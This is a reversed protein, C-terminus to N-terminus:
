LFVIIAYFLKIIIYTQDNNNNNNNELSSIVVAHWNELFRIVGEGAAVESAARSGARGV